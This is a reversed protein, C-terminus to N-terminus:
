QSEAFAPSPQCCAWPHPVGFGQSGLVTAGIGPTRLVEGRPKNGGGKASLRKREFNRSGAAPIGRRIKTWRPLHVCLWFRASWSIGRRPGSVSAVPAAARDATQRVLDTDAIASISADRM